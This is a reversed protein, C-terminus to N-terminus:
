WPKGIGHQVAIHQSIGADTGQILKQFFIGTKRLIEVNLQATGNPSQNWHFTPMTFGHAFSHRLRFIENLHNKIQLISTYGYVRGAGLWDGWPDYGTYEMLFNRSNESNPTNLKEQAKEMRSKAISHMALFAQNGPNSIVMYYESVISKVYVDWTATQYALAAHLFVQKASSVEKKKQASCCPKNLPEIKRKTGCLSCICPFADSDIM